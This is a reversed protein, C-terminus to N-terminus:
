FKRALIITHNRHGSQYRICVNGTFQFYVLIISYKDAIFHLMNRIYAIINAFVLMVTLSLLWSFLSGVTHNVHCESFHSQSPYDSCIYKLTPKPIFYMNWINNTTTARPPYESTLRVSSNWLLHIFHAYTIDIYFSCFLFM